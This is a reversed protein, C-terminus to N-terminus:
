GKARGSFNLAAQDRRVAARREYRDLKRLEPLVRRIAEASRDPEQPPMTASADIPKLVLPRGRDFANVLRIMQSVTLTPPDLEGFASAREILAVKARRVRALDLEGRRFPVPARAHTADTPPLKGNARWQDPRRQASAPQMKSDFFVKATL